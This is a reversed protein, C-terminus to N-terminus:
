GKHRYFGVPNVLEKFYTGNTLLNDLSLSLHALDLMKFEEGGNPTGRSGVSDYTEFSPLVRRRTSASTTTSRVSANDSFVVSSASSLRLVNKEGSPRKGPKVKLSPPADGLILGKPFLKWAVKLGGALLFVNDYGRQTLITAVRPAIREDEDYLIIIHNPRNRFALMERTEFNMCRSLMTAPYNLAGIIHCNNFDDSDRVDLLLYPKTACDRLLPSTSSLVPSRDSDVDIEGIGCIVSYFPSVAVGNVEAVQVALQVFTTMKMRRFIEDPKIKYDTFILTFHLRSENFEDVRRLYRTLSAGTNISSEVDEYRPNKPIKKQLP